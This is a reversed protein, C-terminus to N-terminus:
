KNEIGTLRFTLTGWFLRARMQVPIHRGDDSYWIWLKGRSTPTDATPQVRVARYTATPTRVTERAEVRLTVGTVHNGSVVPLHFVNGPELTQSGTYFIGSLLDTACPPIPVTRHTNSHSVLNREDYFAVRHAGDIRQDSDVQRRGEIVQKSFTLSCGTARNFSSQFRDSVRFLLNIAGQSDGTVSIRELPGDSQLHVTATGATFVRWDAAYTLTQREPFSWGPAPPPFAAPAQAAAQSLLPLFALARAFSLFCRGFSPFSSLNLLTRSWFLDSRM